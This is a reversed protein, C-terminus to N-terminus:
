EHLVPYLNIDKLLESDALLRGTGLISHEVILQLGRAALFTISRIGLKLILDVENLIGTLGL